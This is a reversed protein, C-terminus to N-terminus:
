QSSRFLIASGVNSKGPLYFGSTGLITNRGAMAGSNFGSSENVPHVFTELLTPLGEASVKYVNNGALLRDGSLELFSANLNLTSTPSATGNASLKYLWVWSSGGVALFNGSLSVKSGFNQYSNSNNSLLGELIATETLNGNADSKYVIVRGNDQYTQSNYTGDVYPAGVAVFGNDMSVSIGFHDNQKGQSDTVKVVQAVTAGTRKFVYASGATQNGDVEDGYAGVIMLDGDMAVSQGFYDNSSGDSATLRAVQSPTGTLDYLYAAGTGHNPAYAQSAGVLLSSGSLALSTGFGQSDNGTSDPVAEGAAQLAGTTPNVDYLFVKKKNTSLAVALKDGEAAASTGFHDYSSGNYDLDTPTFDPLGLTSSKVVWWGGSGYVYQGYQNHHGSYYNGTDFGLENVSRPLNRPQVPNAAAWSNISGPTAGEKALSLEVTKAWRYGLDDMFFTRGATTVSSGSYLVTGDSKQITGNVLNINSQGSALRFKFYNLFDASVLPSRSITLNGEALPLELFHLDVPSVRRRWDQCLVEFKLTGTSQPWDEAVNWSIRHVQNTAIPSGILSGTSDILYAPVILDSLSGFNGNVAALVGVTANADDPDIIEFDLDIINTGPRQSIGRIAPQPIVNPVPLGKTRYARKYLKLGGRNVILDGTPTFATRTYYDFLQSAYQLQTGDQDLLKRDSLLTGDKALSVYRRGSGTRRVFTGDAQFYHLYSNDAVVVTGDALVVLDRPHNLQGPASGQTGFSRVFSGNNELVQVRHNEYDAVYVKGDTGLAFGWANYFEGDGSGSSGYSSISANKGTRWKFTGNNELCTVAAYEAVYITGNEDLALDRPYYRSNAITVNRDWTGNLDFVGVYASSGNGMLAYVKGVGTANDEHYAVGYENDMSGPFEKALYWNDQEAARLHLCSFLLTFVLALKTHKTNM